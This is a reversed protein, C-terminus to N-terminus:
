LYAQLERCSQYALSLVRPTAPAPLYRFILTVACSNSSGAVDGAQMSELGFEHGESARKM